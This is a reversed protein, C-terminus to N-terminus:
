RGHRDTARVGIGRVAAPVRPLQIPRCPRQSTDRQEATAAPHGHESARLGRFDAFTVCVM